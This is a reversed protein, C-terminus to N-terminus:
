PATAGGMGRGGHAIGAEALFRRFYGYVTLVSYPEGSRNPFVPTTTIANAQLALYCMLRDALAPHLPPVRRDKHGKANRIHLTGREADVDRHQLQLAEGM